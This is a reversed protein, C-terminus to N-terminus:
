AAESRESSVFRHDEAHHRRLQRVELVLGHQPPPEVLRGFEHRQVPQRDARLAAEGADVGAIRHRRLGLLAFKLQHAAQRAIDPTLCLLIIPFCMRIVRLVIFVFRGPRPRPPAQSQRRSSEGARRRRREGIRRMGDAHEGGGRGSSIGIHQRPKEGCAQAFHEVIWKDDFVYWADAAHDGGFLCRGSRGVTVRQAEVIEPASPMLM